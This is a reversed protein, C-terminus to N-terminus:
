LDVAEELYEALKKASLPREIGKVDLATLIAEADKHKVGTLGDAVAKSLAHITKLYTNTTKKNPEKNAPKKNSNAPHALEETISPWFKRAIEHDHKWFWKALSLKIVTCREPILIDEDESYQARIAIELISTIGEQHQQYPDALCIEEILAEYIEKAMEAKAELSALEKADKEPNVIGDEIDGLTYDALSHEIQTIENEVASLSKYSELGSALLAADEAKLASKWKM